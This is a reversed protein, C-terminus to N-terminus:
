CTKYEAFELAKDVPIYLMVHGCDMCVDARLMADHAGKFILALPDEYVELKLDRRFNGDGRDVVTIDSVIRSGNCNLCKTHM